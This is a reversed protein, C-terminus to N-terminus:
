SECSIIQNELFHYRWLATKEWFSGLKSGPHIVVKIRMHSFFPDWCGSPLGISKNVTWSRPYWVGLISPVVLCFDTTGFQNLLKGAGSQAIKNTTIGSANSTVAGNKVGSRYDVKWCWQLSWVWRWVRCKERCGVVMARGCGPRPELAVPWHHKWTSHDPAIRTHLFKGSRSQGRFALFELSKHMCPCMSNANRPFTWTLMKFPIQLLIHTVISPELMVLRLVQPTVVQSQQIFFVWAKCAVNCIELHVYCKLWCPMSCVCVCVSIGWSKSLCSLDLLFLLGNAMTPNRRSGPIASWSAAQWPSRQSTFLSRSPFLLTSM